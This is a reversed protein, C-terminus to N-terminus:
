LIAMGQSLLGIELEDRIRHRLYRVMLTKAHKLSRRPFGALRTALERARPMLRDATLVEAVVGLRHAEEASMPEGSLLFYRGRNPGLLIPWIMQTGDGPPMGNPMHTTDAFEAHEAALVIDCMVPIESHILAPGNVACIVPVPIALLGELMAASEDMMRDWMDHLNDEPVVENEDRAAVFTSGTGTLIVVKNETDRAIDAFALGLENHHGQRSVNWQVEGGGSHMTMELIGNSREFRITEYRNAYDSLQM